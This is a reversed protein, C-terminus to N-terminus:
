LTLQFPRDDWMGSMRTDGLHLVHGRGRTVKRYDGIMNRFVQVSRVNQKYLFDLVIGSWRIIPNHASVERQCGEDVGNSLLTACQVIKGGDVRDIILISSLRTSINSLCVQSSYIVGGNKVELQDGSRETVSCVFELQNRSGGTTGEVRCTNMLMAFFEGQRVPVWM